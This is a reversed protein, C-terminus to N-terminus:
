FGHKIMLTFQFHNFYRSLKAFIRTNIELLVNAGDEETYGLISAIILINKLGKFADKSHRLM